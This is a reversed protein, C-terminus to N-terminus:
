RDQRDDPMVKEMKQVFTGVFIFKEPIRIVKRGKYTKDSFVGPREPLMSDAVAPM